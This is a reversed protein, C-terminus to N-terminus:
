ARNLVYNRLSGSSSAETNDPILQRCRPSAAAETYFLVRAYALSPRFCPAIVVIHHPLIVPERQLRQLRCNDRPKKPIVLWLLPLLLNQFTSGGM